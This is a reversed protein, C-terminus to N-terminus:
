EPPGSFALMSDLDLDAKLLDRRMRSHAREAGRQARRLVARRAWAEAREGARPAQALLRAGLAGAHHQVLDDELSVIAEYTGPDGQRGCRGFLQRDIRRADHRETAIVHLGGRRAVGPALRIDTGRGAMNTAVTVRGPEGALAVIRAEEGDQRANLVTHAIGAAELRVALEESAAVSRTGVLVPRGEAHLERIRCVAAVWKERKTAFIREGVGRRQTPRHTPITAVPLRYTSWLEGAVERATGTMGSLRLYRRFFRQYSIRAVADQRGSVAVGEKVEIMQHLGHEWSRDKMVRGTYEDVIQVRGDHVLYHQDRHFLHLASLARKVLDERRRPGRWVGGHSAGLRALRESGARLLRIQRERGVIEFDRRPELAKALELGVRCIEEETADSERTSIVLPTRAEDVLVSDAEDVIAFHLGQHALRETRLGGAMRELHLRLRGPRGRLLIRDRLYDFGVEKNTCYTVDCAYAARREAPSMGAVIVGVSLGLAQYVPGMNEADRRALYDNVTVVHVPLGALAAATASLVATLTKGEGTQMEAVMGHLLVWGGMLQVDYHRMSLHQEATERVLAFCRAVLPDVFGRERLDPGLDRAAQRLVEERRGAFDSAHREVEQPIAEWRRRLQPLRRQILGVTRAAAADLASPQEEVREPYAGRVVGM